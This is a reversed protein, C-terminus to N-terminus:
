ILSQAATVLKGILEGKFSESVSLGIPNSYKYSHTEEHYSFGMETLGNHLSSPFQVSGTKEVFHHTASVKFDIDGKGTHLLFLDKENQIIWQGKSFLSLGANDLTAIGDLNVGFIENIIRRIEAGTIQKRVSQLYNNMVEVKTMSMILHDLGSSDQNVSLAESIIVKIDDPYNALRSGEGNESLSDLNIRFIMDVAKRSESGTIHQFSGLYRDMIEIKSMKEIQIDLEKSNPPADLSMRVAEMIPQPYRSARVECSGSKPNEQNYM